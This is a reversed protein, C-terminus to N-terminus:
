SYNYRLDDTSFLEIIHISKHDHEIILVINNLGFKHIERNQSKLLKEGERLRLGRIVKKVEDDRSMLASM